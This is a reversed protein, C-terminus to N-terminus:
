SSIRSSRWDGDLRGASAIFICIHIMVHTHSELVVALTSVRHLRRGKNNYGPMLLPTNHVASHLFMICFSIGPFFCYYCLILYYPQPATKSRTSICTKYVPACGRHGLHTYYQLIYIYQTGKVTKRRFGVASCGTAAAAALRLVHPRNSYIINNYRRSM